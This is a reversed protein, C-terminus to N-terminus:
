RKFIKSIFSPKKKVGDVSPLKVVTSFQPTQVFKTDTRVMKDKSAVKLKFLNSATREDVEVITGAKYEKYNREIKVQM